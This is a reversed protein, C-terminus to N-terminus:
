LSSALADREDRLVFVLDRIREWREAQGAIPSLTEAALEAYSAAKSLHEIATTMRTGEEVTTTKEDDM